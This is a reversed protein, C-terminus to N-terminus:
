RGYCLTPLECPRGLLGEAPDEGAAFWVGDRSQWAGSEGWTWSARPVGRTGKLIEPRFREYLGFAAQKLEKRDCSGALERMADMVTELKDGFKKDLAANPDPWRNEEGPPAPARMHHQPVRNCAFARELFVPASFHRRASREQHGM